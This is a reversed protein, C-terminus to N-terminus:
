NFNFTHCRWHNWGCGGCLMLFEAIQKFKITFANLIYLLFAINLFIVIFYIHFIFCNFEKYKSFAANAFWPLYNFKKYTNEIAYKWVCASVCAYWIYTFLVYISIPMTSDSKTM